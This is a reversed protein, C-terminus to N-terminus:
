REARVLAVGAALARLKGRAVALKERSKCHADGELQGPASSAKPEALWAPRPLSGAITTQLPKTM